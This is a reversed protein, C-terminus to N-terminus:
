QDIRIAEIFGAKDLLPIMGQDERIESPLSNFDKISFYATGIGKWKISLIKYERPDIREVTKGFVIKEGGYLKGTEFSYIGNIRQVQLPVKSWPTSVFIDQFDVGEGVIDFQVVQSHLISESHMTNSGIYLFVCFLLCLSILVFALIRM